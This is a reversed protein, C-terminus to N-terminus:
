ANALLFAAKEAPKSGPYRDALHKLLRATAAADRRENARLALALWAEPLGDPLPSRAGLLGLLREAEVTAGALTFRRVLALADGDALRIAGATAGVYDDFVERIRAAEAGAPAPHALVRRAAEHFEDRAPEPRWSRYLAFAADFDGPRLALLEALLPRARAFELRGYHGFARERLEAEADRQVDEDLFDRREWGLKRVGLALLAGAMIGGAHADFGIGAGPNLWMNVLEWGLWAPLLVLAPAKVYDFVVFFWYFFRVKRLGWVVCYAGMLAAIAGSAGLAGGAEGLHRVVSLLSGGLGGLLYVALFLRPGLAGEVLLGLLALFVMNGILHGADGHLFMAGFLRKAEVDDYKLLFRQTFSSSWIADLKGRLQVWRAHEPHARPVADRRAVAAVFDPDGQVAQFALESRLPEEAHDLIQAI